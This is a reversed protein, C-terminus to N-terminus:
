QKDNGGADIKLSERFIEYKMNYHQLYVTNWLVDQEEIKLVRILPCPRAITLELM